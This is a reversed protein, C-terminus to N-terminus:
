TQQPTITRAFSIFYHNKEKSFKLKGDVTVPYQKTFNTWTRFLLNGDMNTSVIHWNCRSVDALKARERWEEYDEGQM